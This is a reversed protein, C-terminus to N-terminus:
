FIGRPRLRLTVRTLREGSNVAVDVVAATLRRNTARVRIVGGPVNAFTVVRNHRNAGISAVVTEGQLLEVRTGDLRNRISRSTGDVTVQVRGYRLDLRNADAERLNLNTVNWPIQAPHQVRLLHVEGLTIRDLDIFLYGGGGDTQTSALVEGASNQLEVTADILPRGNSLRVSGILTATPTDLTYTRQLVQGSAVDVTESKPEFGPASVTITNRGVRLPVPGFEGNGGSRAETQLGDQRSVHIIAGSVGGGGATVVRGSLEGPPAVRVEVTVRESSTNVGDSVQVEFELELTEFVLPATFQATAINSGTNELLVVPDGEEVLQLWRYTLPVGEPDVSLSADLTVRAGELVSQPEGADAIPPEDTSSTSSIQNVYVNTFGAQAFVTDLNTADSVYACVTGDSSITAFSCDGDAAASGPTTSVLRTTGLRRDRLFVNRDGVTSRSDLDKSVSVFVVLRGDASIGPRGAAGGGGLGAGDAAGDGNSDVSVLETTGNVLDRVFIDTAGNTDGSVLNTAGSVFAVFRGDDSIIPSSSPGAGYKGAPTQSVLIVTRTSRDFVFVDPHGNDDLGGLNTASSAYAVYRGTRDTTAGLSVDNLEGGTPTVSVREVQEVLIGPRGFKVRAAFIDSKGNTDGPVLNSAESEFVVYRFELDADSDPTLDEGRIQASGSNGNGLAGGNGSVLLTQGNRDRLYIQSFNNGASQTLNSAFSQFVVFRGDDTVSPHFSGGNALGSFSNVSIIQTFGNNPDADSPQRLRLFIDSAQNSDLAYFNSANSSFAVGRGSRTLAVSGDSSANGGAPDEDPPVSVRDAAFATCVALALLSAGALFARAQPFRLTM